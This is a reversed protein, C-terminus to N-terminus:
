NVPMCTETCIGVAIVDFELRSTLDLSLPTVSVVRDVKLAWIDSGPEVQQVNEILKYGPRGRGTARDPPLPVFYRHRSLHTLRWPTHSTADSPINVSLVDVDHFSTGALLLRAFRRVIAQSATYDVRDDGTLHYAPDMELSLALAPIGFAGGELAAGVTGSITVEIGLNAGFNIGSVVLAPRRPALEIVGHVIALAPSADLAHAVVREGNVRRTTSQVSGTVDAPMSRGGGSWQRDPAAVIVEGLPLLAEVAAWLGASEVGDDNTVLILPREM